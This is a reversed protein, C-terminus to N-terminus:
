HAGFRRLRAAVSPKLDKSLWMGEIARRARPKRRAWEEIEGVITEDDSHYALLDEICHVGVMAVEDDSAAEVLATLLDIWGAAPEDMWESVCAWPDSPLSEKEKQTLRQYHWYDIALGNLSAWEFTRCGFDQWTIRGDPRLTPNM